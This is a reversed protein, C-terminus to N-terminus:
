FIDKHHKPKTMKRTKVPLHLLSGASGILLHPQLLLRV